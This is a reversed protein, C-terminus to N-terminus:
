CPRTLHMLGGGTGVAHPVDGPVRNAVVAIRRQLLYRVGFRTLPKGRASRFVHDEPDRSCQGVLHQLLQATRPWIPCLRVRHGQRRVSGSLASGAAPRAGSPRRDGTGPGRYQVDARVLCLRATRIDHDSRDIGGLLAEIEPKDLYEIPAAKARPARRCNPWAGLSTVASAPKKEAAM